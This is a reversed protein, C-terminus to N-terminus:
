AIYTYAHMDSQSRGLFERDLLIQIRKKILSPQAQFRHSLQNIVEEVLQTHKLTKRSKMVRVICADCQLEREQKVQDEAESNLKQSPDKLNPNMTRLKVKKLKINWKTNLSFMDTDKIEKGIPTKILLKEPCGKAYNVCCLSYLAARLHRDPINTVSRLDTFSLEPSSNFILLICMMHTSLQLIVERNNSTITRIEASGLHSIFTLKRGHYKALYYTKFTSWLEEVIPPLICELPMSSFDMSNDAFAARLIISSPWCGNSLIIPFFDLKNKHNEVDVVPKYWSLFETHIDSSIAIDKFM